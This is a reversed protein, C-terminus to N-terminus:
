VVTSVMLNRSWKVKGCVTLKPSPNPSEELILERGHLDNPKKIKEDDLAFGKACNLGSGVMFFVAEERSNSRRVVPDEAGYIGRVCVAKFEVYSKSLVYQHAEPLEM